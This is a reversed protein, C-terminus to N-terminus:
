AVRNRTPAGAAASAVSCIHRLTRELALPNMAAATGSISIAAIAKGGSGFVPAAICTLEPLSEGRDIAIGIQRVRLLETRLSDEDVITHPTWAHRPAALAGVMAPPSFALLVKGVATCYAPMRGGIRSPSRLGMRGELKNLYVVDTGHLVALQVTQQTAVYLDALYSTLLDRVRDDHPSTLMSGLERAVPGLRYATNSREVVGNRELMGLIRFTTSKSLSARRALESVGIGVSAEDGFARLVSVAKDITARDDRNKPLADHMTFGM